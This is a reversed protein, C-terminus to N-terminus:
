LGFNRIYKKKCLIASFNPSFYSRNTRFFTDSTKHPWNLSSHIMFHKNKTITCLVAVRRSAGGGGGFFFIQGVAKIRQRQTRISLDANNLLVYCVFCVLRGLILKLVNWFRVLKWLNVKSGILIM